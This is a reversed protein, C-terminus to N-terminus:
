GAFAGQDLEGEPVRGSGVQPPGGSLLQEGRVPLL